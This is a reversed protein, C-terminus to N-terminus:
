PRDPPPAAPAPAKMLEDTGEPPPVAGSTPETAAPKRYSKGNKKISERSKEKKAPKTDKKIDSTSSRDPSSLAQVKVSPVDASVPTVTPKTDSHGDPPPLAPAPMAKLLPVTHGDPPPPPAPVAAAVLLYGTDQNLKSEKKEKTESPGDPPPPPASKLVASIKDCTFPFENNKNSKLQKVKRLKELLPSQTPKNIWQKVREFDQKRIKEIFGCSKEPEDLEAYVEASNQLYFYNLRHLPKSFNEIQELAKVADNRQGLAAYGYAMYLLGQDDRGQQKENPNLKQVALDIQKIGKQIQNRDREPKKTIGSYINAYGLNMLAFNDYDAVKGCHTIADDYKDIYFDYICMGVWGRPDTKDLDIIKNYEAKAENYKSKLIYANGLQYHYQITKPKLDVAKKYSEIAKDYKSSFYYADGLNYHADAYKADLHIAEKFHKLANSLSISNNNTKYENLKARGELLESFAEISATEPNIVNYAVEIAIQGAIKHLILNKLPRQISISRPARHPFFANVTFLIKDNHEEITGELSNRGDTNLQVLWKYIEELTIKEGGATIKLRSFPGLRSQEDDSLTYQFKTPTSSGYKLSEKSWKDEAAKIATIKKGLEITIAHPLAKALKEIETKSSLVTFPKVEFSDSHHMIENSLNRTVTDLIKIVPASIIVIILILGIKKRLNLSEWNNKIKAFPNTIWESLALLKKLFNKIKEFM